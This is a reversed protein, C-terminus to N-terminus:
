VLDVIMDEATDTRHIQGLCTETIIGLSVIDFVTDPVPDHFHRIQAKQKRYKIVPTSINMSDKIIRFIGLLEATSKHIFKKATCCRKRRSSLPIGKVGQYFLSKSLVTGIICNHIDMFFQVFPYFRLLIRRVRRNQRFRLYLTKKFFTAYFLFLQLSKVFTVFFSSTCIGSKHSGINGVGASCLDFSRIYHNMYIRITRFKNLDLINFSAFAKNDRHFPIHLDIPDM